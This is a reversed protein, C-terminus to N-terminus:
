NRMLRENSQEKILVPKIGLYVVFSIFSVAIGKILNFIPIWKFLYAHYVAANNVLKPSFLPVLIFHNAIMASIILALTGFVMGVILNKLNKNKKYIFSITIVFASILLFNALQGVGGTSSSKMLDLLQLAFTLIIGYLPGFALAGILIPVASLDLKLWPVAPIVPVEFFTLVFAVSLLIAGKVIHNTKKSLNM